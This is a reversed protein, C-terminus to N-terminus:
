NAEPLFSVKLLAEAKRWLQQALNMNMAEKTCYSPGCNQWYLGGGAFYTASNLNLAESTAVHVSTLTGELPTKMYGLPILIATLCRIWLPLAGAFNTVVAGPHVAHAVM